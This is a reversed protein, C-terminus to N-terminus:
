PFLERGQLEFLEKAYEYLKMDYKNAAAILRWARSDHEVKPHKHKMPWTWELKKELCNQDEENKPRWGFYKQIRELTEGKEELLGVLCKKRLIEKAINLDNDDLEGKTLENTLFRTMWNNEAFGQKYFKQITIDSFQDNRTEPQKWQTEQIFYFLSAARDVPHRFITFMRGRRTPSFLTSAEHLLPSIVADALGSSALNLTKARMIGAHTSTDVNVFSMSPGFKLVRLTDEQNGGGADAALTLHLCSSFLFHIHPNLPIDQRLFLILLLWVISEGELYIM